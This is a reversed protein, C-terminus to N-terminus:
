QNPMPTFVKVTSSITIGNVSWESHDNANLTVRVENEGLALSAGSLHYWNSYVRALKVGNVYIHAHGENDQPAHNIAAPTFKFNVPLIQVNYGGMIDPFVLHTVSPQPLEASVERPPHQHAEMAGSGSALDMNTTETGMDSSMPDHSIQFLTMAVVAM